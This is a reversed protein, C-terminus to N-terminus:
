QAELYETHYSGAVVGPDELLRMHLPITTPVGDLRM